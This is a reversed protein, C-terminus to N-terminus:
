GNRSMHDAHDVLEDFLTPVKEPTNTFVAYASAAGAFFVMQLARRMKETVVEGEFYSKVVNDFDVQLPAYTQDIVLM